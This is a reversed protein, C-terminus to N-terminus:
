VHLAGGQVNSSAVLAAGASRNSHILGQILKTMRSWTSDWSLTQLLKDARERWKLSMGFAMAQEIAAAFETADNAIRALGLEGYPKVVDRIPTSVVPLGAALFEPTKTPSIFRTAENLAFPM